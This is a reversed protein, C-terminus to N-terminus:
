QIPRPADPTPVEALSVRPAVGSSHEVSLSLSRRVLLMSIVGRSALGAAFAAAVGIAGQAPGLLAVLAIFLAIALLAVRLESSQRRTMALFYDPVGCLSYILRGCALVVLIAVGSRFEPGFLSLLPRAFVVLVAFLPLFAALSYLQSRAFERRLSGRDGRTHLAAFRPGFCSALAM